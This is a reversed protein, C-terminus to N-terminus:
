VGVAAPLYRREVRRGIGTLVEYAITESSEAVEDVGVTPGFFEVWDGREIAVDTADIQTLDM